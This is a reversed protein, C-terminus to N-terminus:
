DVVKEGLNLSFNMLRFRNAVFESKKFLIFRRLAENAHNRKLFIQASHTVSTLYPSFRKQNVPM